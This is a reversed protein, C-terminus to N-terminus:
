YLVYSHFVHWMQKQIVLLGWHQTPWHQSFFHQAHCIYGLTHSCMCGACSNKPSCTDCHEMDSVVDVVMWTLWKGQGVGAQPRPFMSPTCLTLLPLPSWAFAIRRGTVRKGELLCCTGRTNRSNYLLKIELLGNQQTGWQWKILGSM